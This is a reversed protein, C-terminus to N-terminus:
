HPARHPTPSLLSDLVATQSATVGGFEASGDSGPRLKAAIYNNIQGVALLEPCFDFRPGTVITEASRGRLIAAVASPSATSSGVVRGYDQHDREECSEASVRRM